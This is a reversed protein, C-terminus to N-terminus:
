KGQMINLQPFFLIIVDSEVLEADFFSISKAPLTTSVFIVM